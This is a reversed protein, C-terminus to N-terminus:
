MHLVIALVGGSCRYENAYSEAEPRNFFHREDIIHSEFMDVAIVIVKFIPTYILMDPNVQRGNLSIIVKNTNM